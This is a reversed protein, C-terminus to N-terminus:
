RPRDRTQRSFGSGRETGPSELKIFRREVLTVIAEGIDPEDMGMDLLVRLPIHATVVSQFRREVRSLRGM